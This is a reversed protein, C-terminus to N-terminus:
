FCFCFLIKQVAFLFHNCILTVSTLPRSPLFMVNFNKISQLFLQINICQNFFESVGYVCKHWENEM